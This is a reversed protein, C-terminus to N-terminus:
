KRDYTVQGQYDYENRFHHDYYNQTYDTHHKLQRGQLKCNRKTHHGKHTAAQTDATQTIVTPTNAIPTTATHTTATRISALQTAATTHNLPTDNCRTKCNTHNCSTHNCNTHHFNAPSATRSRKHCNTAHTNANKNASMASMDGTRWMGLDVGCCTGADIVICCSRCSIWRGVSHRIWSSM